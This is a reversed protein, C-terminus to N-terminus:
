ELSQSWLVFSERTPNENRQLDKTEDKTMGVTFLVESHHFIETNVASRINLNAYCVRKTTLINRLDKM